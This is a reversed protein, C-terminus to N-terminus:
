RKQSRVLFLVSALGIFGLTSSLFYPLAYGPFALGGLNFRLNLFTAYLYTGVVPFAIDGVSYAINFYGFYEGRADVPAVDAKLGDMAPKGISFGIKRFFHCLATLNVSPVLPLFFGMLRGIGEGVALVPKRGVRDSFRGAVWSSALGILGTLSIIAGITVPEVGFKDNYLLATLPM